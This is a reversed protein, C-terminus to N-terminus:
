FSMTIFTKKCRKRLVALVSLMSMGAVSSARASSTISHRPSFEDLQFLLLVIFRGGSQLVDKIQENERSWRRRLSWMDANASYDRRRRCLWEYAANLVNM